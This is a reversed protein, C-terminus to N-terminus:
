SRTDSSGVYANWNVLGNACQDTIAPGTVDLVQQNNRVIAIKVPGTQGNFPVSFHNIGATGAHLVTSASSGIQVNVTSPNTVLVTLFIKDESVLGPHLPTQGMAPNNGTTGNASGSGSPNRRYWYVIREDSANLNVIPVVPHNSARCCKRSANTM